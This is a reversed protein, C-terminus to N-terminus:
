KISQLAEERYDKGRFPSVICMERLRSATKLSIKEALEPFSSNTTVLITKEHDYRHNILGYLKETVWGTTQEAGLDDLVLLDANFPGDLVTTENVASGGSYTARIADLLKIVNAFYGSHGREVVRRLVAVALHTKGTGVDGSFMLGRKGPAFTEAFEVASQKRAEHEPKGTKYTDFTKRSYKPPIRAAILSYYRAAALRCDCPRALDNVYIYGTHGCKECGIKPKGNPNNTAM